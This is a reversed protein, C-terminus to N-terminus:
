ARLSASVTHLHTAVKDLLDAVATKSTGSEHAAEAFTLVDEILPLGIALAPGAPPPLMRGVMPIFGKLMDLGKIIAPLPNSAPTQPTDPVTPSEKDRISPLSLEPAITKFALFFAAVGPRQDWTDPKYVGDGTYLGIQQHNTLAWVYPSNEGRAWYGRGNYLEAWYLAYETTWVGDAPRPTNRLADAAGDQWTAFPGRGKPVHVSPKDLPDGNGLYTTFDGSSERYNLAAILGAPVKSENAAADYHALAPPAIIRAVTKFVSAKTTESLEATAWLNAYGASYRTFDTNM